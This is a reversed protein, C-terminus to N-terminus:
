FPPLSTLAYAIRETEAVVGSLWPIDRRAAGINYSYDTSSTTYSQKYNHTCVTDLAESYSSPLTPAARGPTAPANNQIHLAVRAIRRLTENYTGFSITQLSLPKRNRLENNTSIVFNNIISGYGLDIAARCLDEVTADNVECEGDSLFIIVPSRSSLIHYGKWNSYLHCTGYRETSWHEEMVRRAHQLALTFDTAGRARHLLLAGLLEDPASSFNNMTGDEVRHDFFLVSYADRRGGVNEQPGGTNMVNHRSAWFAYLSSYVAGLRNPSHQNILVTVPTDPLPGRDQGGMSSSRDIVFISTWSSELVNTVHSMHIVCM